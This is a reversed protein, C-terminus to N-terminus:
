TPNANGGTGPTCSLHWRSRTRPGAATPLPFQEIEMLLRERLGAEGHVSTIAHLPMGALLRREVPDLRIGADSVQDAM